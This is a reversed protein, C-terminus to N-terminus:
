IRGADSLISRLAAVEQAERRAKGSWSSGDLATFCVRYFGVGLALSGIASGWFATAGPLALLMAPLQVNMGLFGAVMTCIGISVGAVGLQVNMRVLRNRYVSLSIALLEQKSQVLRLMSVVDQLTLTLQRHYNELLLEVDEHQSPTRGHSVVLGVMDEDSDLLEKLLAVMDKVALEFDGLADKLVVVRQLGQAASAVSLGNLLSEALPRYLGARRRFSECIDRLAEELVMLEFPLAEYSASGDAEAQKTASLGQKVVEVWKRLGQGHPGFLLLSDAQLIAKIRGVSLVICKGRPLVLPPSRRLGTGLNPALSILDRANMGSGERLLDAVTINKERVLGDSGLALVHYSFSRPHSSSPSSVASAPAAADCFSRRQRQFNHNSNSNNNSNNNNTATNNNTAPTAPAAAGCFSRSVRARLGLHRRPLLQLESAASSLLLLRCAM